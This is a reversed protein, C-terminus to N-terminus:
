FNSKNNFIAKFLFNFGRLQRVVLRREFLTRYFWEFGINQFFKPARKVNDTHFDFVAGVGLMFTTDIKNHYKLIWKEQKPLGLSVWLFNPKKINIDNIMKFEEEISLERFPPSYSGLIKVKPYLKVMKDTLKEAIGLQGGLFYHTWGYKQGLNMIDLFLDPAHYREIKIKHFRAALVIGVGDCLSLYSNNIYKFHEFNRSGFYMAETNTISIYNKNDNDIEDNLSECLTNIQVSDIKMGKVLNTKKM